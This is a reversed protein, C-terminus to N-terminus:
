SIDHESYSQRSGGKHHFYLQAGQPLDSISHISDGQAILIHEGDMSFFVDYAPIYWPVTWLPQTSGDNAYVGSESYKEKLEAGEEEYQEDPHYQEFDKKIEIRLAEPILMVLIYKGDPSVESWSHVDILGARASLAPVFVAALILLQRMSRFFTM